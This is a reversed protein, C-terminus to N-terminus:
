RGRRSSQRGNKSSSPAQRRSASSPHRSAVGEEMDRLENRQRSSGRTKSGVPPTNHGSRGDHRRDKARAHTPQPVIMEDRSPPQSSTYGAVDGAQMRDFEDPDSPDIAPLPKGREKLSKKGKERLHQELIAANRTNARFVADAVDGLIPVLGVAFDLAINFIMRSKITAPLGGEVETCTRLVMLAMMM